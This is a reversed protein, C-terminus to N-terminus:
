LRFFPFGFWEFNQSCYFWLAYVHYGFDGSTVKTQPLLVKIKSIILHFGTTLYIFNHECYKESVSPICFPINEVNNKKKSLKFIGSFDDSVTFRLVFLVIAFHFLVFPCVIIYL